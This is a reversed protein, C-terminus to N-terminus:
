WRIRVVWYSTTGKKDLTVMDGTKVVKEELDPRLPNKVLSRATREPDGWYGQMIMPGRVYLEGKEGPKEIRRGESDIAFTEVNDFAKGIPIPSVQSPDISKVM